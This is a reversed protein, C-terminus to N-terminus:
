DFCFTECFKIISPKRLAVLSGSSKLSHLNEIPDSVLCLRIEM